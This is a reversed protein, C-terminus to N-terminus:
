MEHLDALKLGHKHKFQRARQNPHALTCAVCESFRYGNKRIYFQADPPTRGCRTCPRKPGYYKRPVHEKGQTCQRCRAVRRGANRGNDVFYFGVEPSTRGCKTCPKDSYGVSM